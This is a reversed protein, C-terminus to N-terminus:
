AIFAKKLAACHVDQEFVATLKYLTYNLTHEVFGGTYLTFQVSSVVMLIQVRSHSIWLSTGCLCNDKM